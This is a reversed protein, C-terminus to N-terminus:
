LIDVQKDINNNDRKGRWGGGNGVLGACFRSIGTAPTSMISINKKRSPTIASIHILFIRRTFWESDYNCSLIYVNNPALRLLHYHTCMIIIIM